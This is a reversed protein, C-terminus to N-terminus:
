ATGAAALASLQSGAPKSLHAPIVAVAVTVVGVSQTTPLATAQAPSAKTMARQTRPPPM